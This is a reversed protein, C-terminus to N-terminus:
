VCSFSMNHPWGVLFVFKWSPIIDSNTHGLGWALLAGVITAVGDVALWMSTRLPAEESTWLISTLLMMGPSIPAEAAGLMFRLAFLGGFNFAAAVLVAIYTTLLTKKHRRFTFSLFFIRSLTNRYEMDLRRIGLTRSHDYIPFHLSM